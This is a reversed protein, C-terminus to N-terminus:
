YRRNYNNQKKNNKYKPPADSPQYPHEVYSEYRTLEGRFGITVQVNKQDRTKPTYMLTPLIKHERDDPKKERHLFLIISAVNEIKSSGKLNEMVPKARDKADRNIQCFVVCACDLDQILDKIGQINYSISAVENGIHFKPQRMDQLYDVYLMDIKGYKETIENAKMTIGAVSHEYTGAGYLHFRDSHKVMIDSIEKLKMHEVQTLTDIHLLLDTFSRGVYASFLKAMLKREDSENCFYVIHEGALVQQLVCSLGLSTKGMGSNGAIIVVEKRFAMLYKDMFDLHFFVRYDSNDNIGEKFMQLTRRVTDKTSLLEDSSASQSITKIKEMHEVVEDKPNPSNIIKNQLEFTEVLVARKMSYDKLLSIGQKMSATSPQVTLILNFEDNTLLKTAFMSEVDPSLNKNLCIKIANFAKRCHVTYFDEEIITSAWSKMNKINNNAIFSQIVHAELIADHPPEINM